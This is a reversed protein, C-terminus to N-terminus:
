RCRNEDGDKAANRIGTTANNGYCYKATSTRAHFPTNCVACRIQHCGPFAGWRAFMEALRKQEWARREHMSRLVDELSM